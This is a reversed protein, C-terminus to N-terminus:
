SMQSMHFHSDIHRGLGGFTKYHTFVSNTRGLLTMNTSAKPSPSVLAAQPMIIAQPVIISKM